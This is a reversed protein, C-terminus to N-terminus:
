ALLDWRFRWSAGDCCVSYSSSSLRLCRWTGLTRPKCRIIQLPFIRCNSFFFFNTCCLDETFSTVHSVALGLLLCTEQFYIRQYDRVTALKYWGVDWISLCPAKVSALFPIQSNSCTVHAWSVRAARWEDRHAVWLVSPRSVETAATSGSWRQWLWASGPAIRGEPSPSAQQPSSLHKRAASREREYVLISQIKWERDIEPVGSLPLIVFKCSKWIKKRVHFFFSLAFFFSFFFPLLRCNLALLSCSCCFPLGSM